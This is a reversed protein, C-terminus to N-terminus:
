ATLFRQAVRGQASDACSLASRFVFRHITPSVKWAGAREQRERILEDTNREEMATGSSLGGAM